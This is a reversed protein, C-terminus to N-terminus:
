MGSLFYPGEATGQIAEGLADLDSLLGQADLGAVQLHLLPLAKERLAQHLSQLRQQRQHAAEILAEDRSRNERWKRFFCDWEPNALGVPCQCAGAEGLAQALSRGCRGCDGTEGDGVKAADGYGEMAWELLGAVYGPKIKGSFTVM